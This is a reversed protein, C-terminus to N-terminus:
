GIQSSIVPVTSPGGMFDVQGLAYSIAQQDWWSGNYEVTAQVVINGNIGSSQWGDATLLVDIEVEDARTEFEWGFPIDQPLPHNEQQPQAPDQFVPRLYIKQNGDPFNNIPTLQVTGFATGAAPYQSPRLPSGSVSLVGVALQVNLVGNLNKLLLRSNASVGLTTGESTSLRAITITKLRRKLAGILVGHTGGESVNPLGHM